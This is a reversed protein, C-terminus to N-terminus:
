VSRLFFSMFFFFCIIILCNVNSYVAPKESKSAQLLRARRKVQIAHNTRFKGYLKQEGDSVKCFGGSLVERDSSRRGTESM